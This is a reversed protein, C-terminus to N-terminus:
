GRKPDTEGEKRADFDGKNNHITLTVDETMKFTYWEVEGENPPCQYYMTYTEGVLVNRLTVDKYKDVEGWWKQGSASGMAYKCSTYFRNKITLTKYKTPTIPSSDTTDVSLVCSISLLGVVMLASLIFRKLTTM